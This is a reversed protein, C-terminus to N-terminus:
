GRDRPSPSTYLLCASLHQCTENIGKRFDIPEPTKGGKVPIEHILGFDSTEVDDYVAIHNVEAHNSESEEDSKDDNETHSHKLLNKILNIKVGVEQVPSYYKRLRSTHMLTRGKGENEVLYTNDGSQQIIKGEKWEGKIKCNSNKDLILIKEGIDFHKEKATANHQKVYQSQKHKATSNAIETVIKLKEQLEKVYKNSDTINDTQDENSPDQTGCLKEKMLSCIGRIQTGHLLM